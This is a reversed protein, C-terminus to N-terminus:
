MCPLPGRAASLALRPSANRAAPERGQKLPLSQKYAKKRRLKQKAKEIMQSLTSLFKVSVRKNLQFLQCEPKVIM